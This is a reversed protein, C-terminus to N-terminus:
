EAGAYSKGRLFQVLIHLTRTRPGSPGFVDALSDFPDLPERHSLDQVVLEMDEVWNKKSADINILYLFPEHDGLIGLHQIIANELKHVQPTHKLTVSFPKTRGELVCVITYVM